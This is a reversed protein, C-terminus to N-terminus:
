SVAVPPARPHRGNENAHGSASLGGARLSASRPDSRRGLSLRGIAWRERRLLGPVRCAIDAAGASRHALLSRRLGVFVPSGSVPAPAFDAPPPIEPVRDRQEEGVIAVDRLSRSTHLWWRTRVRRRPVGGHDLFLHGDPLPIELGKTLGEMAQWEPCGPTSAAHLFAEDMGTGSGIRGAVLDVHPQHWWAHVVRIARATVAVRRSMSRWSMGSPIRGSLKVRPSSCVSHSRSSPRRRSLDDKRRLSASRRSTSGTAPASRM